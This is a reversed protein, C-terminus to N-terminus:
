GLIHVVYYRMRKDFYEYDGANFTSKREFLKIELSNDLKALKNFRREMSRQTALKSFMFSTLKKGKYFVSKLDFSGRFNIVFYKLQGVTKLNEFSCEFDNYSDLMAKISSLGKIDANVVNTQRSYGRKVMHAIRFKNVESEKNFMNVFNKKVISSDSFYGNNIADIMNMKSVDVVDLISDIYADRAVRAEGWFRDDFVKHGLLYQKAPKFRIVCKLLDLSDFTKFNFNNVIPKNEIAYEFQEKSLNKFRILKGGDVKDIIKWIDAEQFKELSTSGILSDVSAMYEYFDLALEIPFTRLHSIFREWRIVHSNELLRQRAEKYNNRCLYALEKELRNLEGQTM